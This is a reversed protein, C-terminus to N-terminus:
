FLPVSKKFERLAITAVYIDKKHQKQQAVLNKITRKITEINEKIDQHVKVTFPNRLKEVSREGLIDSVVKLQAKTFKVGATALCNERATKLKEIELKLKKEESFIALEEMIKEQATKAFTNNKLKDKKYNEKEEKTKM